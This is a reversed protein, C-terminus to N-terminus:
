RSGWHKIIIFLYNPKDINHIHYSKSSEKMIILHLKNENIYETLESEVSAYILCHISKRLKKIPDQINLTKIEILYNVWEWYWCNLYLILVHKNEFYRYISSENSSIIVGLKKFTFADFGIENILTISHEVIRKGLESTEPNKIFTKENVQIKINKLLEQM